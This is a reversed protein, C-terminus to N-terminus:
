ARAHLWKAVRLVTEDEGERGILQVGLPLGKPGKGYPVNACPVHLLTWSIQFIPNGTAGLGEPAEGPASPSLFVDWDGFVANLRRRCIEAHALALRRREPTCAIGDEIM